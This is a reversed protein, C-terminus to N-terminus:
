ELRWAPTRDGKMARATMAVIPIRRNPAGEPMARLRRAAELGDMRPMEVDM